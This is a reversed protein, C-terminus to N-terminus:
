WLKKGPDGKKDRKAELAAVTKDMQFKHNKTQCLITNWHMTKAHPNLKLMITLNKLPNKKLVRRHSKKCPTSSLEKLGFESFDWM